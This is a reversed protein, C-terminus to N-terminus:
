RFSLEVKGFVGFDAELHDGQQAAYIMNVTGSIILDGAKLSKGTAQGHNALWAMVNLPHGLVKDGTDSGFKQGNLNLVVEHQALDVSQWDEILEGMVVFGHIANDAIFEPASVGEFGVFHHSAVEIAPFLHSIFPRITDATYPVDAAPVDAGMKFGFEPEILRVHFNAAELVKGSLYTTAGLLQGRFPEPANLAEQANKSTCGVKYGVVTSETAECLNAVLAEQIDYGANISDPRLGDPINKVIDGNQRLRLLLDAAKQHDSM